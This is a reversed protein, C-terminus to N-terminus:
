DYGCCPLSAWLPKECPKAVNGSCGLRSRRHAHRRMACKRCNHILVLSQLERELLDNELTKGGVATEENRFLDRLQGGIPCGFPLVQGELVECVLDEGEVDGGGLDGRGVQLVDDVLTVRGEACFVDGRGDREVRLAVDM